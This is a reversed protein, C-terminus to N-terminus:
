EAEQQAEILDKIERKFFIAHTFIAKYRTRMIPSDTKYYGERYAEIEAELMSVVYEITQADLKPTQETM